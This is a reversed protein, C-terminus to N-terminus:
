SKAYKSWIINIFLSHNNLIIHNDLIEKILKEEKQIAELFNKETLSVKHITYPLLYLPLKVEPVLLLDLDSDKKATFKAFSGFVIILSTVKVEKLFSKFILYKGIFFNTKCIEAQLLYNKTEINELNLSFYKNKGHLSANLIRKRELEKLINQTTRLPIESLKSIERLYFRRTYDGLYLSLVELEKNRKQYM